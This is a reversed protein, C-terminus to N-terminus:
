ASHTSEMLKLFDKEKDLYILINMGSETIEYYRMTRKRGKSEIEMIFGASILSKLIDKLVNWSINAAYMIRTPKKVGKRVARLIDM